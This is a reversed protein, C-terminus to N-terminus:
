VVPDETRRELLEALAVTEGDRAGRGVVLPAQAPDPTAGRLRAVLGGPFRMVFFTAATDVALSRDPTLYWGRLATRVPRGGGIPRAHLPRPEIGAAQWREIAARLLETAQEHERRRAAQLAAERSAILEDRSSGARPSPSTSRPTPPGPRHRADQEPSPDQPAPPEHTAPPEHAAPPAQPDERAQPGQMGEM